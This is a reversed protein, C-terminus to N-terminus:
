FDITLQSYVWFTPDSETMEPDEQHHRVFAEDPLFVSAGCVAKVGAISVTSMYVDFEVGVGSTEGSDALDFYNQATTFYHFDANATWDPHLNIRGCALVDMLGAPGSAVYYDMYGRFKHGTYYLNDYAKYDNDRPNDDGSAYDIGASFRAKSAGKLNYGLEGTFMFAQLNIQAPGNMMKGTQYVGNVEMDFNQFKRISYLGFSWRDMVHDAPDAVRINEGLFTGATDMDLEYAGFLEIKAQDLKLHLGYIDFDGNFDEFNEEQAKLGFGTVKFGSGQYWGLGGEWSRGVNSWGVAGFVRQNGVNFEFRGAKAGFGDVWIRDLQFYAQHLDVNKGDNTTGSQWNGFQDAGGLTRSDQFQVFAHANSDVTADVNVRTRMLAFTKGAAATDFSRADYEIRARVQGSVEITTEARAGLSISAALVVSALHITSTKLDAEQTLYNEIEPPRLAWM